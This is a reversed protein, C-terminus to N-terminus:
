VPLSFSPSSIDTIGGDLVTILGYVITIATNSVVIVSEVTHLVPRVGYAVHQATNPPYLCHIM